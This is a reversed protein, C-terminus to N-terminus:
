SGSMRKNCVLIMINEMYKEKFCNQTPLDNCTCTGSYHCTKKRMFSSNPRPDFLHRDESSIPIIQIFTRTGPGILSPPDTPVDIRPGFLWSSAQSDRFSGMSPMTKAM